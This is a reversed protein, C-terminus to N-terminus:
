KKRNNNESRSLEGELKKLCMRAILRYQEKKDEDLEDYPVWDTKWERRIDKQVKLSIDKSWEVWQDHFLSSWIEVLESTGNILFGTLLEPKRKNTKTSLNTTKISHKKTKTNIREESIKKNKRFCFLKKILKILNNRENFLQQHPNDM